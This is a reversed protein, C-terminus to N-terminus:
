QLAIASEAAAENSQYFDKHTSATLAVASSSCLSKCTLVNDYYATLIALLRYSKASQTRADDKARIQITRLSPRFM